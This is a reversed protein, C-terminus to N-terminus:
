SAGPLKELMGAFGGNESIRAMENVDYMINAFFESRVEKTESEMAKDMLALMVMAVYDIDLKLGTVKKRGHYKRVNKNVHAATSLIIGHSMALYEIM